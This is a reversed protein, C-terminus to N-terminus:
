HSNAAQCVADPPPAIVLATESNIPLFPTTEQYRELASLPTYLTITLEPQEESPLLWRECYEPHDAGFSIRAATVPEKGELWLLYQLHDDAADYVDLHGRYLLAYPRGQTATAIAAIVEAQDSVTSQPLSSLWNWTLFAQGLFIAAIAYKVWASVVHPSHLQATIGLVAGLWIFMLNLAHEGSITKLVFALAAWSGWVGLLWLLSTQNPPTEWTLQRRVLWACSGCVLITLWILAVSPLTPSSLALWTTWWYEFSTSGRAVSKLTIILGLILVGGQWMRQLGYAAPQKWWWLTVLVAGLIVASANLQIACVTWLWALMWHRRTRQPTEDQALLLPTVSGVWLMTVLPLPSPEIAIRSQQVARGAVALWGAGVLAAVQGWHRRLWWWLLVIAAVNAVAISVVPGWLQYNSVVLTLASWYYYLPGLSVGSVSTEPGWTWWANLLINRGALVARGQDTYFVPDTTLNTFRLTAALLLVLAGDWWQFWTRWTSLPSRWDAPAKM